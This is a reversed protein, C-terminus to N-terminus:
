DGGAYYVWHRSLRLQLYTFFVLVIFLIWALASAYGMDFYSMAQRVLHLMYFWTAYMPGGNTGVFAVAFISFGGIIGIVLNFFITPTIMPLTINWFRQMGGAGDFTAVALALRLPGGDPAPMNDTKFGRKQNGSGVYGRFEPQPM